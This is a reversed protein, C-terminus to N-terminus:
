KAAPNYIKRVYETIERKRRRRDAYRLLKDQKVTYKSFANEWIYKLERGQYAYLIDKDCFLDVLIKELSPFNVGGVKQLPSESIMPKIVIPNKEVSVYREMIEVSPELFVVKNGDQLKHFVTECAEKEAELIIVSKNSLHQTLDNLWGTEWICHKAYPFQVTIDRYLKLLRQAPSPTFVKM